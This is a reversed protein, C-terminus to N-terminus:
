KLPRSVKGSIIRSMDLLDSILQNQVRANREVIGLGEHLMKADAPNRQLLQSWGLIVNLPTRLEHSLTALFEDKMKGVREAESRAAREASALQQYKGANDKLERQLRANELAIGAPGAISMVIHESSETFVGVEAHGFFLGGLVKGNRGM